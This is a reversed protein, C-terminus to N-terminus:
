CLCYPSVICCVDFKNSRKAVSLSCTNLLKMQDILTYIYWIYMCFWFKGKWLYHVYRPFFIGESWLVQVLVFFVCFSCCIIFMIEQPTQHKCNFIIDLNADEDQELNDKCCLLYNLHDHNEKECVLLPHFSPVLDCILFKRICYVYLYVFFM